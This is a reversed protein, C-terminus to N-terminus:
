CTGWVKHKLSTYFMCSFVIDKGPELFDYQDLSDVYEHGEWWLIFDYPM